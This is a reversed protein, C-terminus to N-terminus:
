MEGRAGKPRTQPSRRPPLVLLRAGHIITQCQVVQLLKVGHIQMERQLMEGFQGRDREQSRQRLHEGHTQRPLKIAMLQEGDMKHMLGDTKVLAIRDIMLGDLTEEHHLLRRTQGALERQDRLYAQTRAAMEGTTKGTTPRRLNMLDPRRGLVSLKREPLICTESRLAVCICLSVPCLGIEQTQKVQFPLAITLKVLRHPPM